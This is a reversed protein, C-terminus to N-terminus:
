GRDRGASLVLTANVRHRTVIAGPGGTRSWRSLVLGHEAVYRANASWTARLGDTQM